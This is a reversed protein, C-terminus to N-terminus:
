PLPLPLDSLCPPAKSQLSAHGEFSSCGCMPLKLDEISPLVLSPTSGLYCTLTSGKKPLSRGVGGLGTSFRTRHVSGSSQGPALPTHTSVRSMPTNIIDAMDTYSIIFVYIYIYVCVTIQVFVHNM